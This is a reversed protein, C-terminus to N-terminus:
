KFNELVFIFEDKLTVDNVYAFFSERLYEEQKINEIDELSLIVYKRDKFYGISLVEMGDDFYASSTKTHDSPVIIVDKHHNFGDYYSCSYVDIDYDNVIEQIANRFSINHTLILIEKRSM